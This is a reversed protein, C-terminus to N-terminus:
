PQKSAARAFVPAMFHTNYTCFIKKQTYEAEPKGPDPLQASGSM